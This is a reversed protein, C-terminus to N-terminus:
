RIKNMSSDDYPGCDTHDVTLKLGDASMTVGYLADDAFLLQDKSYFLRAAQYGRQMKGHGESMPCLVYAADTAQYLRYLRNYLHHAAQLVDTKLEDTGHIAIIAREAIHNADGTILLRKGAATIRCITSGDNPNEVPTKGSAASAADEHTYLVDITANAIPFSMGTHPCLYKVNPYLKALRNRFMDIRGDHEVLSLSPYNFMVRELLLEGHYHGLLKYFFTVHDSHGHTGYWLAIRIPEGAETGTIKHLFKICEDINKDSSQRIAGGDIVILSNDALHIIYMMGNDAYLAEDSKEGEDFYPYDFQYVTAGEGSNCEYGFDEFCNTNNDEIIRVENKREAFYTYYLKEGKRFAACTVGGLTNEYVPQYGAEQLAGCYNEYQGRNTFRVLEMLSESGTPGDEDSFLGSGDLYINESIQGGEYVPLDLQWADARRDVTGFSSFLSFILTFFVAFFRQLVIM